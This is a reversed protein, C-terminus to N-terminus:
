NSRVYLRLGGYISTDTAGTTRTVTVYYTGPNATVVTDLTFSVFGADSYSATGAYTNVLTGSTTYIKISLTSGSLPIGTGMADVLQLVVPLSSGTLIDVNIEQKSQDAVVKFPGMRLTSTSGGGGATSVQSDLYYGYTGASPIGGSPSSTSRVQNWIGKTIEIVADTALSSATVVDPQMQHVDAAIHNSSTIFTEYSPSTSTGRIIRRGFTNATSYSTLLADWVASATQNVTLPPTSLSYGTKDSVTGATVAGAVSITLASFNTPLTFSAMRSSIAADLRNGIINGASGAAYAGPLATSWPDAASGAANLKFGAQGSTYTGPLAESWVQTAVQAATPPATYTFTAMRSSVTADINTKLQLGISSATTVNASLVDWVSQSTIDNFGTIGTGKALVINTGASLTRTAAAWVNTSTGADLKFGAQGSTFTGPLAESWVQTSIQAATPPTVSLSYGTKDNNTTVTVGATVSAVSGAVNGASVNLQSTGTGSTLVGGASGSAINPLATLGLRVTDFPDYAQVQVISNYDRTVSAKEINVAIWGLTDVEGSTFEYYYQGNGIETWTGAGSAIAAGNKSITITPTVIGTSPTFGDTLSVLLVPVRRRAATAESQKIQFM